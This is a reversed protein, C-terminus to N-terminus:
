RIQIQPVGGLGGHVSPPVSAEFVCWGHAQTFCAINASRSVGQVTVVVSKPRGRVNGVVITSPKPQFPRIESVSGYGRDGRHGEQAVSNLEDFSRGGPLRVYLINGKRRVQVGDGLAVRDASVAQVPGTTGAALTLGSGALTYGGGNHTREATVAFGAGLVLPLVLAGATRRARRRRLQRRGASVAAGIEIRGTPQHRHLVTRVEQESLPM